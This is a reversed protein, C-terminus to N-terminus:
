CPVWRLRLQPKAMQPISLRDAFVYKANCAETFYQLVAPNGQNPVNESRAVPVHVRAERRFLYPNVRYRPEKDYLFDPIGFAGSDLGVRAFIFRGPLTKTLFTATRIWGKKAFNHIADVTSVISEPRRYTPLELIAVPTVDHGEFADMGCSERFRGSGFTKSPNVKLGLLHLYGVVAFWSDVPVIIDDGFVRVERALEELARKSPKIDRQYCIGALAVCEFLITQLPFTCASGMTSFKRIKHLSKPASSLSPLRVQDTRSAELADLVSPNRRWLREVVYCSIRDSASSLDITAHKGDCSAQLAAAQNFSQDRLSISRSLWTGAIKKYFFDKLSQQCWQNATPESAILRPADLTKPVAILKSSEETNESVSGAKVADVWHGYNAFAFRDVPFVRGLRGSWFRFSYKSDKRNPRDAVAGPGHKFDWGEPDFIGFSVSVIDCVRQITDTLRMREPRPIATYDANTTTDTWLDGFHLNQVANADFEDSSWPLTPLRCDLDTTVFDNVHREIVDSPCAMRFRKAVRSLQRIARVSAISRDSRLAGSEDFVRLLLGKFLCPIVGRRRFPRFGDIRSPTLRGNALCRDFHKAFAPLSVMAFHHGRHEILSLLRKLDRECERALTPEIDSVDSLIARYLSSLFNAYSKTKM